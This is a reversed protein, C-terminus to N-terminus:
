EAGESANRALWTELDAVRYLRLRGYVTVRPGDGKAAMKRLMSASLDLLEAARIQRVALRVASAPAPPAPITRKM